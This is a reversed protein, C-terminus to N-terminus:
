SAGTTPKTCRTTGSEAPTLRIQSSQLKLPEHTTRDWLIATGATVGFSLYPHKPSLHPGEGSLRTLPVAPEVCTWEPEVGFYSPPDDGREAAETTRHVATSASDLAQLTVVGLMLLFFCANLAVNLREGPAAYSHHRHRAIGWWAPVVLLPSLLTLLKAAALVQWVAPVELDDPSLSLGDAYLAHLVSGAALFSSLALTAVLPVAWAVWEGWSWQRVLLWLGSMVGLVLATMLIQRRTWGHGEGDVLGLGSATLFAMLLLVTVVGFRRGERALRAGARVGGAAGLGAVTVWFWWAFGSRGAAFVLAAATLLSWSVAHFLRHETEEEPWYRVTGRWRGDLPRVGAGAIQPTHTRALRLAQRPHGSVVGGADYWGCRLALRSVTRRWSHPPRARHRASDVVRWHSFMERDRRVPEAFRVYAELRAGRMAKRVRHAAGRDCAKAAGFLRVEIEYVRAEPDPDLAPGRPPEGGTETSFGRVPWGHEEFCRQAEEWDDPGGRVEVLARVRQDYRAHPM